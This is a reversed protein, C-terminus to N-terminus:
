HEHSHGHPIAGSASAMKVQYAGQTVVRDGPHLGKIIQVEKGNNAGLAVEQKRYGEEDIQVYVYHTGMENTLASVPISLTNEIPASILYVEVFSGPIVEGKNDFEFSVPIFFLNENSTKGFSLLRGNLDELSYVKNDYPTKFNASKISQMANYYRQSVEARLVLRQNQSVTALPQGITIYEGEKVLINKVHGNIPANVSVGKATKNNSVADYATKANEFELKTNEFEKQSIIKDKVLSEARDYSAKAAEYTAKVKTYYDGEAINKSSIQFLSQGKQVKTGETLKNSTFSVVGNSTAVIVAEDGPAALIQGTTKVVQNFSAPQIERVEFTTKAAQAKPFIIEDSHKAEESEHNHDAHEHDHGEHNHDHGEHDHDHGEHSHDHGEHCHDHEEHNHGAHTETESHTHKDQSSQNKCGWLSIALITIAYIIARM